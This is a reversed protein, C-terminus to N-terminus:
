ADEYVALALRLKALGRDLHNQVTTVGVDILEAVERMHWGFGHVLVVAIRQNETLRALAGDLGPEVWPEARPVYPDVAVPRRQRTRSRGVRYLYGMPNEMERVREWHEWANALAEAAADRGREDGYAAVLSRRLRPEAERVFQAFAEHRGDAV